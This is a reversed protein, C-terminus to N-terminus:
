MTSQTEEKRDSLVHVRTKSPEGLMRAGTETPVRCPNGMEGSRKRRYMAGRCIDIGLPRM